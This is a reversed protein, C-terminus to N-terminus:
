TIKCDYKMFAPALHVSNTNQRDGTEGQHRMGRGGLRQAGRVKQRPAHQIVHDMDRRRAIRNRAGTRRKDRGLCAKGIVRREVIQEHDRPAIRGRIRVAGDRWPQRPLRAGTHHHPAHGAPRDDQRPRPQHPVPPHRHMPFIGRGKGLHRGIQPDLARQEDDVAVPDGTGAAGRRHVHHVRQDGRM